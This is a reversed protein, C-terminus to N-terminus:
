EEEDIMYHCRQLLHLCLDMYDNIQSESPLGDEYENISLLTDCGSCSGYYTNTYVYDEVSPQYQDRHLIFVQTGQYDGDDIVLINETDFRYHDCEISPNIVIDFLLKVLDEYNGYEEQRAKRFFEELKDKNKEWALCFEKIM